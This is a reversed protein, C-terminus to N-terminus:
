VVRHGLLPGVGVGVGGVVLVLVEAPNREATESGAVVGPVSGPRLRRVRDASPGGGLRIVTAVVLDGGVEVVDAVEVIEVVDVVEARERAERVEGLVCRVAGVAARGPGFPSSGRRTGGIGSGGVPRAGSGRVPAFGPSQAIGSPGSPRYGYRESWRRVVGFGADGGM